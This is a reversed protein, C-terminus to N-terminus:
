HISLRRRWREYLWLSFFTRGGDWGALFDDWAARLLKPDLYGLIFSSTAFLESEMEERLPGTFWERLPVPFGKKPRDMSEPIKRSLVKRLVYKGPGRPPLKFCSPVRAAIKAVEVDLLPTRLEISAGMSMKDAKQLLSEALQWDIDLVLLRSLTDRQPRSVTDAVAHMRTLLVELQVSSLGRPMRVDGPLAEVRLMAAESGPSSHARALFRDWRSPSAHVRAKPLFRAAWRFYESREMTELMGAYRGEYGAFIEDSGEGSLLVKVHDHALECVRLVAFCAPDGIPEDLFNVVRDIDRAFDTATLELRHHQSGLEEATKAAGVLESDETGFGVSFTHVASKLLPQAYALVTRSDLGSSLLLGVPVDARLHLSISENLARDIEDLAVDFDTLDAEVGLDYQWYRTPQAMSADLQVRLACGAPLKWIQRFHTRPPPLSLWAAYDLFADDDLERCVWPLTLLAKLESAFAFRGDNWTYYLPKQGFHDRALFLLRARIDVICFAFMGRLCSTM